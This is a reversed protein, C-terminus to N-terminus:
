QEPSEVSSMDIIGLPEIDERKEEFYGKNDRLIIENDSFAIVEKYEVKEAKKYALIDGQQYRDFPIRIIKFISGKKILPELNDSSIGFEQVDETIKQLQEQTVQGMTFQCSVIFGDLMTSYPMEDIKEDILNEETEPLGKKLLDKYCNRITEMKLKLLDPAKDIGGEIILMEPDAGCVNAIATTIEESPIRDANNKLIGIYSQTIDVGENKCEIAIEKLSKGSNEIMINLQQNYSM